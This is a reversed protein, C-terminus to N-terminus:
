KCILKKLFIDGMDGSFKAKDFKTSDYDFVSFSKDANKRSDSDKLFTHYAVSHYELMQEPLSDLRYEISNDIQHYEIKKYFKVKSMKPASIEFHVFLDNTYLTFRGNEDSYTNTGVSWNINWGRIIAGEVPQKTDQDVIRGTIVLNNYGIM